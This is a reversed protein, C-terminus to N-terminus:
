IGVRDPSADVRAESRCSCGCSGCLAASRVRRRELKLAFLEGDGVVLRPMVLVDEVAEEALIPLGAAIRGVLPVDTSLQRPALSAPSASPACDSDTSTIAYARPTNADRRVLGREELQKLQYSVSSTSALGVGAGVERMSPPYGHGRTFAGIFEVIKQQRVTLSGSAGHASTIGAPSTDADNM